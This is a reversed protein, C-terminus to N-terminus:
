RLEVDPKLGKAINLLDNNQHRIDYKIQEILYSVYEGNYKDKLKKSEFATEKLSRNIYGFYLEELMNVYHVSPLDNKIYDINDIIESERIIKVNYKESLNGLYSGAKFTLNNDVVTLVDEYDRMMDVIRSIKEDTKIRGTCLFIKKAVIDEPFYEYFDYVFGKLECEVFKNKIDNIIDLSQGDHTIVVVDSLIVKTKDQFNIASQM